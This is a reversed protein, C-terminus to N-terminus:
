GNPAETYQLARGALDMIKEFQKGAEEPDDHPAFSAITRIARLTQAIYKVQAEGANDVAQVLNAKDVEKALVQQAQEMKNASLPAKVLEDLANVLDLHNNFAQVIAELIALGYFDAMDPALTALKGDVLSNHYYLSTGKLSLRTQRRATTM